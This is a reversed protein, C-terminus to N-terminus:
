ARRILHSRLSPAPEHRSLRLAHSIISSTVGRPTESGLPELALVGLPLLTVRADPLPELRGVFEEVKANPVHASVLDLPGGDGEAEVRNLIRGGSARAVELVEGGRGRPVQVILRRM